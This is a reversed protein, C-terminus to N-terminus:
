GMLGKAQLMEFADLICRRLVPPEFHADKAIEVQERVLASAIAIPLPTGPALVGVVLGLQGRIQVEYVGVLEFHVKEAEAVYGTLASRAFGAINGADAVYDGVLAWSPVKWVPRGGNGTALVLVHHASTISGDILSRTQDKYVIIPCIRVAVYNKPDGESNQITSVLARPSQFLDVQLGAALNRHTQALSSAAPADAVTDPIPQNANHFSPNTENKTIIEQEVDNANQVGTPPLYYPQPAPLSTPDPYKAESSLGLPGSPSLSM